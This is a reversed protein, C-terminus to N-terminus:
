RIDLPQSLVTRADPSLKDADALMLSVQWREDEKLSDAYAPMGTLRIGNTVKWYTEGPPDDTVGHGKFLQPPKPFMGTAAPYDPQGPLGHCVACHTRYVHAGAILNDNTAQLPANKPAEKEIRAKLAMSALRREFLMPSSATAVPAYGFRVYLWACLPLLILGILFGFIFSRM